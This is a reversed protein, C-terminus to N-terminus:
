FSNDILEGIIKNINYKIKLKPFHKIFNQNNTIWWKHDGVRNKKDYRIKVKIKLKKEIVSIAELISCSCKRGGGINYVQGSTPKKFFEWFCQVLDKSHINDRVQKGKYGIITYTKKKICSKVLYSLFGHLKVGSHNSGTICGARFCATKLGFNKGYEQVLIDASLKSAGFISHICNDINMTENIGNYFKDTRRLDYRLKHEVIELFNPNNGYVKNTSLYIFPTKKFLYKKTLQLLNLTGNANIEFDISPNSAAWDHSPQAAAHIILKIKKKNKKFIFDLKKYDRIDCDFHQYKEGYTKKNRKKLWLTSGDKGFFFERLNNDIGIVKFNKKIFFDVSESGVLGCSGTILVYNM